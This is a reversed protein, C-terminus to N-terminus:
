TIQCIAYTADGGVCFHRILLGACWRSVSSVYFLDSETVPVLPFEDGAVSSGDCKYIPYQRIRSWYWDCHPIVHGSENVVPWGHNGMRSWGRAMFLISLPTVFRISQGRRKEPRTEWNRGDAHVSCASTDVWWVWWAWGLYFRM